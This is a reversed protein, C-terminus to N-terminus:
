GTRGAIPLTGGQVQCDIAQIRDPAPQGCCGCEGQEELALTGLPALRTNPPHADIGTRTDEENDNDGEGWKSM